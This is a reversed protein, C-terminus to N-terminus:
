SVVWNTVMFRGFPGKKAPRYELLGVRQGADDVIKRVQTETLLTDDFEIEFKCGWKEIKPRFRMIRGKTAPIVVPRADIVFDKIGLDIHEPTVMMCAAAQKELSARGKGKSYTAAAVLCRQLAVGPIILNGSAPDRYSALEAQEEKSKKELAEIPVEPFRHMLLAYIGKISVEAKKQM